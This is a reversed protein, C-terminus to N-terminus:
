SVTEAADQADQYEQSVLAVYKSGDYMKVVQLGTVAFIAPDVVQEGGTLEGGTLKDMLEDVLEDVTM